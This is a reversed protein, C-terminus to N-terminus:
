SMHTSCRTTCAKQLKVISLHVMNHIRATHKASCITPILPITLMSIAPMVVLDYVCLFRLLLFVCSKAPVYINSSSYYWCISCRIYEVLSLCRSSTVYSNTILSQQLISMTTCTATAHLSWTPKNANCVQFSLIV